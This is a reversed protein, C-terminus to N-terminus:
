FFPDALFVESTGPLSASGLTAFTMFAGSAEMAAFDGGVPKGNADASVLKVNSTCGAAGFLCPSSTYVQQGSISPTLTLTIAPTPNGPVATSPTGGGCGTVAASALLLAVFLVSRQNM